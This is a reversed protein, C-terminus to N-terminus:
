KLAGVSDFKLLSVNPLTMAKTVIEIAMEAGYAVIAKSYDYCNITDIWDSQKDSLKTLSKKRRKMEICLLGNPLFILMDPFGASLGQAKQKKMYQVAHRGENPVHAHAIRKIKLWQVFTVQESEETPVTEKQNKYRINEIM